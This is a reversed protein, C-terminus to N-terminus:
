LRGRRAMVAKRRMRSTRMPWQLRMGIRLIIELVSAAFFYM